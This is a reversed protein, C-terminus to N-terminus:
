RLIILAIIPDGNNFKVLPLRLSDFFSLFIYQIYFVSCSLGHKIEISEHKFGSHKFPNFTRVIKSSCHINIMQLSQKALNSGM